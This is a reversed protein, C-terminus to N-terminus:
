NKTDRKISRHRFFRKTRLPLHTNLKWIVATIPTLDQTIRVLYKSKIRNMAPSFLRSAIGQRRKTIEKSMSIKIRQSNINPDPRYSKIKMAKIWHITFQNIKRRFSYKAKSLAQEILLCAKTKPTSLRKLMSKV